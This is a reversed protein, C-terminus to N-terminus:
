QTQLLAIAVHVAEHARIAESHTVDFRKGHVLDNRLDRVEKAWNDYETTASFDVGTAEKVLNKAIATASKPQGDSRLFKAEIASPSPGAQAFRARAFRSLWAEFFVATQIVALRWEHLDLHDLIDADLTPGIEPPETKAVAARLRADVAGDLGPGFMFAPGNGHM